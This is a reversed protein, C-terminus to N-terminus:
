KKSGFVIYLIIKYYIVLCIFISIFYFFVGIVIALLLLLKGDEYRFISYDYTNVPRLFKYTSETSDNNVITYSDVMVCKITFSKSDLYSIFSDINNTLKDFRPNEDSFFKINNMLAIDKVKEPLKDSCFSQVPPNSVLFLSSYPRLTEKAELSPSYGDKSYVQDLTSIVENDKQLEYISFVKGTYEPKLLRSSLVDAFVWRNIISSYSNALLNLFYFAVLLYSIIFLVKLLRHWWKASLDLDDRVIWNKIKQLKTKM